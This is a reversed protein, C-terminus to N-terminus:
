AEKGNMKALQDKAKEFDLLSDRISKEVKITIANKLCELLDGSLAVYLQRDGEKKVRKIVSLVELLDLSLSIMGASYGTEQAIEQLSVPRNKVLLVGILKGHLPSYGISRAVEAFTSFIKSEIDREPTSM